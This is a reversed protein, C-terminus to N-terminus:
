YGSVRGWESNEYLGDSLQGLAMVCYDNLVDEWSQTNPKWQEITYKNM